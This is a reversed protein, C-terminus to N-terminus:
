HVKGNIVKLGAKLALEQWPIRPANPYTKVPTKVVLMSRYAEGITRKSRPM